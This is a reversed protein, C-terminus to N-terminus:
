NRERHDVYEVILGDPHRFRTKRGVPTKQIPEIQEAGADLLAKIAPELSAVNITVRTAEFPRRKEPPGAIVLVSLTPSSVAALQLGTEPYDFRLTETGGLLSQYFGSTQDLMGADVFVRIHTEKIKM